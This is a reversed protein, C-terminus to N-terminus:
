SRSGTASQSLTIATRCSSAEAGQLDQAGLPVPEVILVIFEGAVGVHHKAHRPDDPLISRPNDDSVCLLGSMRVMLRGRADQGFRHSRGAIPDRERGGEM